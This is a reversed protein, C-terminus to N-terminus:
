EVNITMEKSDGTSLNVKLKYEGSPWPMATNTFSFAKMANGEVTVDQTVPGLVTGNQPAQLSATVQMSTQANSIRVTAYIKSNNKDMVSRTEQVYGDNNSTNNVLVDHITPAGQTQESSPTPSETTTGAGTPNLKINLIKWESGEKVLKYEVPTVSGDEANLSGKLTGLNNEIEKSTFSVNKNKSLSPYASVFKKFNELSTAKQFDKSTYSYAKTVDGSRLAVLQAQAVDAIGKTAMNALLIIAVIFIVIGILIKKLKSM